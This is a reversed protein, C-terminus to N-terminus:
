MLKQKNFKTFVKSMTIAKLKHKFMLLGLGIGIIYQTARQHTPFHINETFQQYKVDSFTYYYILLPMTIFLFMYYIRTYLLLLLANFIYKNIKAM